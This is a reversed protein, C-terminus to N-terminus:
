SLAQMCWLFKMAIDEIEWPIGHCVLATIGSKLHSEWRWFRWCTMEAPLSISAEENFLIRQPLKCKSKTPLPSAWGPPPWDRLGLLSSCQQHYIWRRWAGAHSNQLEAYLDPLKCPGAVVAHIQYVTCNEWCLLMLAIEHMQLVTWPGRWNGRCMGGWLHKNLGEQITEPSINGLVCSWIRM